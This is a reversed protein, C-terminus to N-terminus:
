GHGVGRRKGAGSKGRWNLCGACDVGAGGGVQGDALCDARGRYRLVARQGIGEGDLVVAVSRRRFRVIDCNRVGERGDQFGYGDGVVARRPCFSRLVGVVGRGARESRSGSLDRYGGSRQRAIGGGAGDNDGGADTCQGHGSCDSYTVWVSHFTSNFLGSSKSLVGLHRDTKGM